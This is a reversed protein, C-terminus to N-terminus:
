LSSYWRPSQGKRSLPNAPLPQSLEYCSSSLNSHPLSFQPEKWVDLCACLTVSTERSNALAETVAADWGLEGM